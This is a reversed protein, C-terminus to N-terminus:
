QLLLDLSLSPLVEVPEDGKMFLKAGGVGHLTMRDGEVLLWSGERLGVVPADNEEHFEKIRTERTEGMHRSNPNADVFHPNIQFPVLGLASFTPPYVIPMDNTTCITPCALNSGASAGMYLMGRSVRKPIEEMLGREYMRKLLRFTNGGGVFIADVRDMVDGLHGSEEHISTLDFGLEALRDRAIKTYGDM